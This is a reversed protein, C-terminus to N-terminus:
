SRQSNFYVFLSLKKAKYSFGSPMISLTFFIFMLALSLSAITAKDFISSVYKKVACASFSCLTTLIREYLSLIKVM